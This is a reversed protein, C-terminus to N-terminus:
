RASKLAAILEAALDRDEYKRLDSETEGQPFFFVVKEQERAENLAAGIAKIEPHGDEGPAYRPWRAALFEVVKRAQAVNRVKVAVKGTPAHVINWFKPCSPVRAGELQGHYTWDGLCELRLRLFDCTALEVLKTRWQVPRGRRAIQVPPLCSAQVADREVTISM